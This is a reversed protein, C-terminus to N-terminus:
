RAKEELSSLMECIYDGIPFGNEDAEYLVCDYCHRVDGCGNPLVDKIYSVLYAVRNEPTCELTPDMAFKNCSDNFEHHELGGDDSDSTCLVMNDQYEGRFCIACCKKVVCMDDIPHPNM